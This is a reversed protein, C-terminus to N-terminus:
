VMYKKNGHTNKGTSYNKKSSKHIYVSYQKANKTKESFALLVIDINDEKVQHLESM